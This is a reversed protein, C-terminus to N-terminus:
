RHSAPGLGVVPEAATPILLELGGSSGQRWVGSGEGPQQVHGAQSGWGGAAEKAEAGGGSSRAAPAPSVAPKLELGECLVQVDMTGVPRNGSGPKSGGDSGCASCGGSSGRNSGGSASGALGGIDTPISGSDCRACAKGATQAKSGDLSAAPSEGEEAISPPLNALARAAIGGDHSGPSSSSDHSGARQSVAIDAMAHSPMVEAIKDLISQAFIEGQLCLRWALRCATGNTELGSCSGITMMTLPMIGCAAVSYTLQCACMRQWQGNLEIRAGPNGQAM